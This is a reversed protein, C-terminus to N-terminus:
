LSSMPRFGAAQDGGTPPTPLLMYDNRYPVCATFYVCSIPAEPAGEPIGCVVFVVPFCVSANAWQETQLVRDSAPTPSPEEQPTATVRVYERERELTPEAAMGEDFCAPGSVGLCLALATRKLAVSSPM